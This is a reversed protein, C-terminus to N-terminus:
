LAVADARAREALGVAKGRVGTKALQGDGGNQEPNVPEM